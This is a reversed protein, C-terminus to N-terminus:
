ICLYINIYVYSRANIFLYTYLYVDIYLRQIIQYQLSALLNLSHEPDSILELSRFVQTGTSRRRWLRRKAGAEWDWQGRVEVLAAEQQVPQTNLPSDTGGLCRDGNTGGLATEVNERQAFPPVLCQEHCSKPPLSQALVQLWWALASCDLFWALSVRRVGVGWSGSTTWSMYPSYLTGLRDSKSIRNTWKNMWGDMWESPLLSTRSQAPSQVLHWSM